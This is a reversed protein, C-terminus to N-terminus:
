ARVRLRRASRVAEECRRALTKRDGAHAIPVPPHYTVHVSGQPAQALLKLAHAGFDMDGWWGYFRPDEGRPEIYRITVPQVSLGPPMDQTFFAAFLTSKFPLVRLGDTSTGEPFFVLKHGARLHDELLSRQEGAQRGSRQIFLTGTVRALFGIGPWGAVESKSVFTVRAPANLTFIDLWSAHNSVMAGPGSLPRGTVHHRIGLVVFAMRSFAQVIYPTWPRALGHLPREVLRLPLLVALGLIMLVALTGGRLVVRAWGAASIPKAAPEDASRWTVSM